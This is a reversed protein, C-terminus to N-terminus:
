VTSIKKPNRPDRNGNLLGEMYFYRWIPIYPRVNVINEENIIERDKLNDTYFKRMPEPRRINEIWDFKGRGWCHHCYCVIENKYSTIKTSVLITVVM